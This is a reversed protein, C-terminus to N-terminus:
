MGGRLQDVYEQLLENSKGFPMVPILEDLKNAVERLVKAREDARILPDAKALQAKAVARRADDYSDSWMESDWATRIEEDTLLLGEGTPQYLSDIQQAVKDSDVQWDDIAIEEDGVKYSHQVWNKPDNIIAKVQEIKDTM